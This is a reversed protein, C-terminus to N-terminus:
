IPVQQPQRARAELAREVMHLIADERAAHGEAKELVDRLADRIQWQKQVLEQWSLGAFNNNDLMSRVRTVERGLERHEILVAETLLDGLIPWLFEEEFNSHNILGEQLASMKRQLRKLKEAFNDLKEPVWESDTARLANSVEMDSLQDGVLKIGERVTHHENIVRRVIELEDTM